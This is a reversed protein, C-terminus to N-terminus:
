RVAAAGRWRAVVTSALLGGEDRLAEALRELASM